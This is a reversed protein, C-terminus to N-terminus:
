CGAGELVALVDALMRRDVPGSVRVRREGALLIEIQGGAVAPGDETVRVPVFAPVPREADRRRLEARWWYFGAQNFRRKRCFAQVSLGSRPQEQVVQRWFAEKKLDRLAM